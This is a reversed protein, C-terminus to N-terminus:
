NRRHTTFTMTDNMPDHVRDLITGPAEAVDRPGIVVRGGASAVLLIMLRNMEQLKAEMERIREYALSSEKSRPYADILAELCKGFPDQRNHSPLAVWRKTTESELLVATYVVDRKKELNAPIPNRWPSLVTDDAWYIPMGGAIHEFFQVQGDAPGGVFLVKEAM